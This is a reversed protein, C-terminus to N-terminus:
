ADKMRYELIKRAIELNTLKRGPINEYEEIMEQLLNLPFLNVLQERDIEVLLSSPITEADFFRVESRVELSGKLCTDIQDFEANLLESKIFNQAKEISKLHGIIEFFIM